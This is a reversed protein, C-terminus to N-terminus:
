CAFLEHPLGCCVACACVVASRAFMWYLWHRASFCLVRFAWVRWFTRLVDICSDDEGQVQLHRMPSHSLPARAPSAGHNDENNFTDKKSLLYLYWTFATASAEM